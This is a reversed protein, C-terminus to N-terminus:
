YPRSSVWELVRFGGLGDPDTLAAAEQVRSRARVAALDGVHAREQWVRRGEEVLEDIGYARLFEAQPRNSDPARVAALQDVAIECTIDQQGLHELPHGGRQHGRYTRVWDSWRRGRMEDTTTCYDIVVVRAAVALAERLWAAAVNQRAARPGGISVEVLRGDADVDVLVEHDDHEVLDFPLNDLLENAFVVVPGDVEPFTPDTREVPIYRLASRCAPAAAHM